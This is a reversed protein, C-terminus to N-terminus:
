KNPNLDELIKNLKDISTKDFDAPVNFSEDDVSEKTVKKATIKMTIGYKEVEFEMMVGKVDAYPNCWNINKVGLEPTYYADITSGNSLTAQVKKCKYGCIDKTGDAEKVATIFEKNMQQIRNYDVDAVYKKDILHLTQKATKTEDFAIFVINVLGMMGSFGTISNGNKFRYIAKDPLGMLDNPDMSPYTVEYEITGEATGTSRGGSCSNVTIIIALGLVLYTKIFISSLFKTM